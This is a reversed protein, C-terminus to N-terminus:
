SCSRVACFNSELQGEEADRGSETRYLAVYSRPVHGCLTVNPFHRARIAAHSKEGSQCENSRSIPRIVPTENSPASKVGERHLQNVLNASM